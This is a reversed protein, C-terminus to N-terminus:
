TMAITKQLFYTGKKFSFIPNEPIKTIKEGKCVKIIDDYGLRLGKCATKENLINGDVINRFGYIKKGGVGGCNFIGECDWQGLDQGLTLSHGGSFVISDTDCYIPKQVKRIADFLYARVFGTVSAGTAINYHRWASEDQDKSIILKDHLEGHIEYGETLAYNFEDLGCLYTTKYKEPNAAFKGYASNLFLKSFIYEPSGKKSTCKITYFHDVYKKFNKTEYFIKQEIHKVDWLLDLEQAKLLEWGTCAFIYEKGNDPFTLAGDNDRFPFAGTAKAQFKYFNHGKLEPNESYDSIFDGIPHEHTMAYPYASNIDFYNIEDNIIGKKFCQVRGGYYYPRIADFFQRGSDDIKIGEIKQLKKIASSAITLSFGHEKLFEDVLDHLFVCDDKLYDIIIKRNEPKDREEAEMINYDIKTKQYASLPVPLICYSDCFEIGDIKFQALRGNIITLKEWTAIKHMFFHFDFKGGNHAYIRINRGKLFDLLDDINKFHHFGDALSYFGWIFPKPIRGEKFPDTECDIIGFEKV